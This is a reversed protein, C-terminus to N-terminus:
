AEVIYLLLIMAILLTGATILLRNLDSRIFRYEQERSLVVPKAVVRPATRSTSRNRVARAKTAVRDPEISEAAPPAVAIAAGRTAESRAEM